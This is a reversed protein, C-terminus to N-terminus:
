SRTGGRKRGSRRTRPTRQPPRASAPAPALAPEAEQADIWECVIAFADERSLGFARMLYPVAGYMNSRGKARLRRLFTHFRARPGAAVSSM